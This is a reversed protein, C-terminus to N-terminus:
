KQILRLHRETEPKNQSTQKAVPLRRNDRLNTIAKELLSMFKQNEKIADEVETPGILKAADQVIKDAFAVQVLITQKLMQYFQTLDIQASKLTQCLEQHTSFEWFLEGIKRLRWPTPLEKRWEIEYEIGNDATKIRWYLKHDISAQDLFQLLKLM